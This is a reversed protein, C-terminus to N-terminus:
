SNDELLSGTPQNQQLQRKKNSCSKGFHELINTMEVTAILLERQKKPNKKMELTPKNANLLIPTSSLWSGGM